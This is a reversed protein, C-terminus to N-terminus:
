RDAMGVKYALIAEADDLAEIEKKMTRQRVHIELGKTFMAKQAANSLAILAEASMPVDNNDADTWFFQEPLGGDRAAAASPELRDQTEKGYDWRHGNFEFVYSASEMRDRWANIEENKLSRAKEPTLLDTIREGDFGWRGSIDARRNAETDEVEVVSQNAPFLMSVDRSISTIVGDSNYVLKLTDQAFLSQCEYWDHGEASKLYMAGLVDPKEPTYLTFNKFNNM